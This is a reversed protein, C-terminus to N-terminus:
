EIWETDFANGQGDLAQAESAFTIIASGDADYLIISGREGYAVGQITKGLLKMIDTPKETM